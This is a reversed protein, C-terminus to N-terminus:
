RALMMLFPMPELVTLGVRSQNFYPGFHNKDGTILYSAGAGMAALYIPADKAPLFVDDPLRLDPRDSVVRMTSILGEAREQHDASEYNNRLEALSHPSTLLELGPLHWFRHFPSVPSRAASYVVNSDLFVLLLRTM